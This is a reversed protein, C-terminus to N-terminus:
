RYPSKEGIEPSWTLRSPPYSLVDPLGQYWRCASENRPQRGAMYMGAAYVPPGPPGADQQSNTHSNDLTSIGGDDRFVLTTTPLRFERGFLLRGAVLLSLVLTPWVLLKRALSRM